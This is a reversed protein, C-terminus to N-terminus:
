ARSAAMASSHEAELVAELSSAINSRSAAASEAQSRAEDARDRAEDAGASARASHIDSQAAFFDPIGAGARGVGELASDLAKGWDAVTSGDAGTAGVGGATASAITMGGSIASSVLRLNAAEDMRGLRVEHLAAAAEHEDRMADRESAERDQNLRIMMEAPTDFESITPLVCPSTGSARIESM